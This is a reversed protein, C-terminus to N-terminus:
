HTVFLKAIATNDAETYKIQYIGAAWDFTEIRREAETIANNCYVIRGSIDSIVVTGPETSKNKIRLIFNGDTPNPVAILALSISKLKNLGSTGCGQSTQLSSRPGMLTAEMRSCQDVTFMNMCNDDVYDMFNMYMEGDPGSGCTNFDNHPFTPCQFNSNEAPETDDVQDDGCITDGWIHLLNLWHGVEHTATRGLDNMDFTGTGATGNNGFAEYRIVVGDLEPEISLDAPFSAFGLTTGDLNVIYINLYENPDWNDHGGNATSKIDNYDVDTWSVMNTQTRTIGSTPNGQPDITALCFEIGAEGVNSYFPHSSDLTDANQLNFDENLVDLQSYIQSDSINEVPDNWIVHFVVPITIVNRGHKRREGANSNKWSRAFDNIEAQKQRLAPNKQARQEFIEHSMCKNTQQAMLDFAILILAFAIRTTFNKSHSFKKGCFSTLLTNKM